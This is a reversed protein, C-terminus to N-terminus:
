FMIVHIHLTMRSYASGLTRVTYRNTPSPIMSSPPWATCLSPPCNQMHGEQFTAPSWCYLGHLPRCTVTM